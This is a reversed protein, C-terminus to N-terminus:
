THRPRQVCKACVVFARWGCRSTAKEAEDRPATVSCRGNVSAPTRGAKSSISRETLRANHGNTVTAKCYAVPDNASAKKHMGAKMVAM